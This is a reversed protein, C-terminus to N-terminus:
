SVQEIELLRGSIVYTLGDHTRIVIESERNMRDCEKIYGIDKIQRDCLANFCDEEKRTMKSSLSYIEDLKSVQM